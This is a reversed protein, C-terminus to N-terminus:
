FLPMKEGSTLRGVLELILSVCIAFWSAWVEIDVRTGDDYKENEFSIRLPSKVGGWEGANKIFCVADKFQKERKKQEKRNLKNKLKRLLKLGEQVTLASEQAWFESEEVFDSQAQFRGRHPKSM